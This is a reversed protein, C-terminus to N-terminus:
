VRGGLIEAIESFLDGVRRLGAVSIRQPDQVAREALRGLHRSIADADRDASFIAFFRQWSDIPIGLLDQSLVEAIFGDMLRTRAIRGFNGGRDAEPEDSIQDAKSPYPREPVAMFIQSSQGRSRKGYRWFWNRHEAVFRAQEVFPSFLRPVGSVVNDFVWPFVVLLDADACAAPTTRFRFSPEREKALAYWGKLEIGLLIEPQTAPSAARLTVDPFTQPQRVFRYGAYRRYPDWIRRLKNLEEVVQSEITAGLSTNFTYLDTALVGSVRLDSEFFAPLSRVAERVALYLDRHPWSAAVAETAAPAVPAKPPM